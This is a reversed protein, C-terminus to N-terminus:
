ALEDLFAHVTEIFIRRWTSAMDTWRSVMQGSRTARDNLLEVFRMALQEYNATMRVM